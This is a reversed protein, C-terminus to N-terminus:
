KNETVDRLKVCDTCTQTIIKEHSNRGMRGAFVSLPSSGSCDFPLSAAIVVWYKLPELSDLIVFGIADYWREDYSDLKVGCNCVDLPENLDHGCALREFFLMWQTLRVERRSENTCSAQFLFNKMDIPWWVKRRIEIYFRGRCGINKENYSTKIGLDKEKTM